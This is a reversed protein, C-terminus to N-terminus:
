DHPLSIPGEGRGIEQLKAPSASSRAGALDHPADKALDGLIFEGIEAIRRGQSIGRHDIVEDGVASCSM